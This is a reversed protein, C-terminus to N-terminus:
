GSIGETNFHWEAELGITIRGLLVTSVNGNSQTIKISYVYGGFAWKETEAPWLHFKMNSISINETYIPRSGWTRSVSFKIADGSVPTYTQGARTKLTLTFIGTDGRSIFINGNKDVELM